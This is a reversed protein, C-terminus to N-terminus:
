EWPRFRKVDRFSCIYDEVSSVIAKGDETYRWLGNKFVACERRIHGRFDREVRMLVGEPPQVEPFNNWGNPNYDEVLEIEDAAFRASFRIPGVQHRGRVFHGFDIEYFDREKLCPGSLFKNLWDSFAGDSIEDLKKQLEQDKLRYKAM